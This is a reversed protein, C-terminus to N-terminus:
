TGAGKNCDRRLKEKLLVFAPHDQLHEPVITEHIDLMGKVREIVSLLVQQRDTPAGVSQGEASEAQLEALLTALTPEPM